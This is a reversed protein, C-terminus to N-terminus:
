KAPLSLRRNGRQIMPLEMLHYSLVALTITIGSVIFMLKYGSLWPLRDLMTSLVIIHWLYIGYSIKGIYKLPLELFVSRIPLTITALLLFGFSVALLSKFGVIMMSSAWYNVSKLLFLNFSFTFIFLSSYLFFSRYNKDIMRAMFSNKGSHKIWFLAILIGVSFEDLTGPLFNSFISQTNPNSEGPRLILTTSFRWIWSSIVMLAIIKLPNNRFIRTFLFAMLVYFQMELAITWNPGVLSGHTQPLLNHLFVLHSGLHALISKASLFLLHPQLFAIFIAITFYYLPAIRFWRRTLFRIRSKRALNLNERSLSLTIVFGSIVFFLDVGMWGNRIIQFPGGNPFSNFNSIVVIHYLMVATAAIGRLADIRNFRERFDANQQKLVEDNSSFYPLDINQM